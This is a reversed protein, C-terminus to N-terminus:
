SLMYPGKHNSGQMDRTKDGGVVDQGGVGGLAIVM